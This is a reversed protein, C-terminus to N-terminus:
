AMEERSLCTGGFTRYDGCLGLRGQSVPKHQIYCQIAKIFVVVLTAKEM